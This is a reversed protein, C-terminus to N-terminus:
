NLSDIGKQVTAAMMQDNVRAREIIRVLSLSIMSSEEM